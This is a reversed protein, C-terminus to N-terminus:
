IAPEHMEKMRSAGHRRAILRFLYASLTGVIAGGVLAIGVWEVFQGLIVRQFLPWWDAWYTPAHRNTFLVHDLNPLGVFMMLFAYYAYYSFLATVWTVVASLAALRISHSQKVEYIAVPIVPVLWIGYNLLM